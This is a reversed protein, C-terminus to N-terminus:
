KQKIENYRKTKEAHSIHNLELSVRLDFLYVAFVHLIHLPFFRLLLVILTKENFNQKRSTYDM